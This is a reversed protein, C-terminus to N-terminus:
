DFIDYGIDLDVRTNIGALSGNSTFQWFKIGTLNYTPNNSLAWSYDKNNQGWEALWIDYKSVLTKTDLKYVLWDKSAYVGCEYGSKEMIDCFQNAVATLTERSTNAVSKDEIDIFVKTGLTPKYYTPYFAIENLLRLMHRAEASASVDSNSTDKAYSYLYLGYPINYKECEAVYTKFYTDDQNTWDGGFGARIIIFGIGADSLKKFDISGQHASIDIGTYKKKSVIKNLKFKQNKSNNSKNIHVNSGNDSAVAELSLGNQRSVLSFYNDGVNRVAWQQNANGNSKYIAVNTGPVMGAENVDLSLYPNMASTVSYFGNNLYKFYWIQNNGGNSSYIEVNTNNEKLAGRVDVVKNNSLLTELTYYGDDIVRDTGSLTVETFKFKQEDGNINKNLVLGSNESVSNATIYMGSYSSIINYNGDGVDKIVFQQNAGNNNSFLEVKELPTYSYNPIDVVKGGSLASTFKYYGNGLNNVYWKQSDLDNNTEMQLTAGNFALELDLGIVMKSNLGSSITYLGDSITEEGFVAKVLKFMQNKGNNDIWTDLSANNTSIGGYIDLVLGNSRSIIKFFDDDIKQILWEQNSGDNKDELSVRSGKSKSNNAVTLVKNNDALSAISYFGNDLYKLIWKQNYNNFNTSNLFNNELNSLVKSYDLKSTIIYDGDDLFKEGITNVSKFKFKQNAGGNTDWVHVNAGNKSIGGSIDLNLGNSKSIISYYGDGNDQILWEQNVSNKKQWLLVNTGNTKGGNAVDLVMNSDIYSAISYYGNDLYKVEWKQMLNAKNDTYDINNGNTVTESINLNRNEDLASVIEYTGDTIINNDDNVVNFKFKQNAGGNAIWTHINAGNKAIGGNVDLYLGNCKSIINYYGDGIDKIIWKQNNYNSNKWLLVNTGNTKGGNAVDLVKDSELFSSIQYYGNKIYEVKWKQKLLNLNTAVNINAGSQVGSSINLRINEDLASVIEYTGNELTKETSYIKNLKFRQNAGNNKDWVHINAGDNTSGWAIDMYLDSNKDVLNYYGDGGDKVLWKQNSGDNNQWLNVNSGKLKSAGAVDLVKNEDDFSSIVYYDDGIHHFFWKQNTGNNKRYIEVNTGNQTYGMHLDLVKNQSMASEIEYVGDEIIQARVNCFGFMFVIMLFLFYRKKM